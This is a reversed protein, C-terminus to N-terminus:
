HQSSQSTGDDLFGTSQKSGFPPLSFRAQGNWYSQSKPRDERQRWRGALVATGLARTPVTFIVSLYLVRLLTKM